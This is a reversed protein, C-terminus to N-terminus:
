DKAGTFEKCEDYSMEWRKNGCLYIKLYRLQTMVRTEVSKIETHKEVLEPYKKLLKQVQCAERPLVDMTQPNVWIYDPETVSIFKFGLAKYTKGSFLNCDSYTLLSEPKEKEMFYKLIKGAGGVIQYGNGGFFDFLIM